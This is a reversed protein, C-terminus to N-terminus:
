LMMKNESTIQHLDSESASGNRKLTQISQGSNRGNDLTKPENTIQTRRSERLFNIRNRLKSLATNGGEKSGSNKLIISAGSTNPYHVSDSQKSQSNQKDSLHSEQKMDRESEANNLCTGNKSSESKEHAQSTALSDEDRQKDEVEQFYLAKPPNVVDIGFESQQCQKNLLAPHDNDRQKLKIIDAEMPAIEKPEANTEDTSSSVPLSGQFNEHGAELVMSFEREKQLQEQLRAVDKELALRCELLANKRKELNEQLLANRKAEEAIRNQLVTKTAELRQIEDEDDFAVDISEMSLNKRGIRRRFISKWRLHLIPGNHVDISKLFTSTEASGTKFLESSENEPTACVDGHSPASDIGEKREHWLSTRPPKRPPVKDVEVANSVESSKSVLNGDRPSENTVENEGTQNTTAASANDSDDDINEVSGDGGYREDHDVDNTYEKSGTGSGDSGSYQEPSGSLSGGGFINDYEELLTIVIAQAHNAAAAAAKLLQVSGGGGMDFNHDIECDGALLPHLLLPAMCAAVATTSMRNMDKHTVVNKMMILMRQLLRRNPEPFMEMIASRMASVRKGRDTRFAELLANCCSAPVPSSPMERLIYKVCDGIIHADEDPYFEVKGQKYERIRCEVDDVDAAQRLIGEIKVGHKEIFQLAKELFSPNGDIDELALLVPQRDKSKESSVDTANVQDNRLMGNQGIVLAVSPVNALAEELAVRWELLEELTEAKFTRGDRGDPFLVTLLKKDEKVVVSGSSNLDIAGLILNVEGPKQPSITPDSRFFILSTHTLIFWRKKWSTWGIGKSSVFLPGCKYVKYFNHYQLQHDTSDPPQLPFNAGEGQSADANHYTM